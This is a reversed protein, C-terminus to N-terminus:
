ELLTTNLIFGFNFSAGWIYIARVSAPTSQLPNCYVVSKNGRSMMQHGFEKGSYEREQRSNEKQRQNQRLIQPGHPFVTRWTTYNLRRHRKQRIQPSRSSLSQNRFYCTAVSTWSLTYCDCIYSLLLLFYQVYRLSYHLENSGVEALPFALFSWDIM